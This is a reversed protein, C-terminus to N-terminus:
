RLNKIKEALEAIFSENTCCDDFWDCYDSDEMMYDVWSCTSFPEDIYRDDLLGFSAFPAPSLLEEFNLSMNDVISGLYTAWMDRSIGHEKLADAMDDDIVQIKFCTWRRSKRGTKSIRTERYGFVLRGSDPEWFVQVIKEEGLRSAVIDQIKTEYASVLSM